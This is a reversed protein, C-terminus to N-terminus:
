SLGSECSTTEVCGAIALMGKRAAQELRILHAASGRRSVDWQLSMSAQPSFKLGQPKIVSSIATRRDALPSM